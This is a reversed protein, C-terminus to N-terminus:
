QNTAKGKDFERLAELCTRTFRNHTGTDGFEAVKAFRKSGARDTYEREPLAIVDSGDEWRLHRVGRLHLRWAAIYVDFLEVLRGANVPHVNSIILAPGNPKATASETEASAPPEAKDQAAAREVLFETAFLIRGVSEEIKSLRAEVPPESAPADTM